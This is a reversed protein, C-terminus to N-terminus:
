PLELGVKGVIGYDPSETTKLLRVAFRPTSCPPPGEEVGRRM